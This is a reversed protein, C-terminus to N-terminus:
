LMALTKGLVDHRKLSIDPCLINLVSVSIMSVTEARLATWVNVFM